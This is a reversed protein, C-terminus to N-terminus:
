NAIGRGGKRRRRKARWGAMGDIAYGGEGVADATRFVRVQGMIMAGVVRVVPAGAGPAPLQELLPRMNCPM